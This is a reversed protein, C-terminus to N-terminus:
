GRILYVVLLGAVVALAGGHRLVTQPTRTAVKMLHTAYGPFIAWILGELVLVLGLAVGLDGM